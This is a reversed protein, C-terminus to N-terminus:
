PRVWRAVREREVGARWAALCLANRLFTRLVGRERYRRASTTVPEPLLALRGHRRLGEVLDLDEMLPVQPVGGMRELVERRLFLAQDGYPLGALRARMRAGWEIARLSAGAEEFRLAFAGGAVAPDALAGRVAEAFGEPLRSDAHLFLLVPADCAKAGAELQAARGPPARLVRAGAAEARERTADRSGGDAVIVEVGPARASRVAAGIRPAEDLAPIVVAIRM